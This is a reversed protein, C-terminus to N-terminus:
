STKSRSVIKATIQQRQKAENSLTSLDQKYSGQWLNYQLQLDQNQTGVNQDAATFDDYIAKIFTPMNDKHDPNKKNADYHSFWYRLDDGINNNWVLPGADPNWKDQSECSGDPYLAWKAETEPTGPPPNHKYYDPDSTWGVNFASNPDSMWHLDWKKGNWVWYAFNYQEQGTHEQFHINNPDLQTNAIDKVNDELGKLTSQDLYKAGDTELWGELKTLVSKLNKADSDTINKGENFFDEALTLINRIDAVVDMIATFISSDGEKVTLFQALVYIPDVNPNALMKKLAADAEEKLQKNDAVQQGDQNLQNFGFNNSPEPKPSPSATTDTSAADNM